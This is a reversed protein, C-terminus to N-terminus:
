SFKIISVEISICVQVIFNWFTMELDFWRVFYNQIKYVWWPAFKMVIFM